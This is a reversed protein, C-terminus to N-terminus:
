KIRGFWFTIFVSHIFDAISIMAIIKELFSKNKSIIAYDLWKSKGKKGRFQGM